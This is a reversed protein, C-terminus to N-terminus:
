RNYTHMSGAATPLYNVGYWTVQISLFSLLLVAFLLAARKKKLPELHIYVLTLLWTAGAWCEKPDWTWYDGWAQKAWVCGCLMGCLLLVSSTRLLRDSIGAEADKKWGCLGAIAAVVAIAMVSYAIMYIMVHPVFWISRLAPPLTSFSIKATTVVTFLVAIAAVAPILVKLKWKGALMMSSGILLLLMGLCVAPLWPDRVLNLVTYSGGVTDYGSQYIRYGRYSCPHNVSTRLEQLDGSLKDSLLLRSTYQRPSIGDDYTETAFEQLRLAFPIQVRMGKADCAVDEMEDGVIMQAKVVDPAGWFGGWVLLFMGLHTMIFSAKRSSPAQSSIRDLITLELCTQLMIAAIIFPISGHLNCGWTGEVAMMIAVVSMTVAGAKWGALARVIRSNRFLRHLMWVLLIFSAGLIASIPFQLLSITENM